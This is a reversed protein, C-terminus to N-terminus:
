KSTGKVSPVTASPKAPSEAKNSKDTNPCATSTPFIERWLGCSIVYELDARIQENERGLQNIREEKDWVEQNIADIKKERDKLLGEFKSTAAQLEKIAEQNEKNVNVAQEFNGKWQASEAALKTQKNYDCVFYGIVGLLAAVVIGIVVAKITSSIGIM